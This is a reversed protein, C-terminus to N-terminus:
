RAHRSANTQQTHISEIEVNNSFVTIFKLDKIQSAPTVTRREWPISGLYWRTWFDLDAEPNRNLLQELTEIQGVQIGIEQFTDYVFKSCFQRNDNDYNFGTHYFFGLRDQAATKLTRLTTSKLSQHYRKLEVMENPFRDIFDCLPTIVSRPIRSEYVVWEDNERFLIGVHSTWTLTDEAIKQYSYSDVATFILDGSRVELAVKECLSLDSNNKELAPLAFTFLPFVLTILLNVSIKKM